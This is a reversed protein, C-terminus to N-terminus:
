ILTLTADRVSEYNQILACVTQIDAGANAAFINEDFGKLDANIFRSFYLARYAFVREADTIHLLIDKPTWKGVAYKYDWKNEPISEFFLKTINLGKELAEILAIEENLNIYAQYFSNYESTSIESSNMNKKM